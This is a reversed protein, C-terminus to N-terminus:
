SQSYRCFSNGAQLIVKETNDADPLKFKLVTDREAALKLSVTKGESFEGSATIGHPLHLQEFRCRKWGRPIGRFFYFTGNQEYAFMDQIATVVGMAADMQMINNCFAFETFGRFIADHLSNGGKNTFCKKWLELMLVAAEANGFRTRLQSAWATAWGTWEGMGKGTWRCNSNFVTEKWAPDEPDITNFPCIGGLHSHHRHSEELPLGEWVAIEPKNGDLFISCQPLRDEIKQWFPDAKVDLIAAAKLLNRALNHISALQFSSNKGCANIATGRYEPSISLPMSLTGDPEEAIMKRFVNMVGKMFDFVEQKLFTFDGSYDCYDFMMMAIWAACSHDISGTWFSGMCMGRDDAAHPLMYGDDIGIFCKANHRLSKKWSLIMRFLPMLHDFLGAKFGPSNCMQVNINFHYDGQWPPFAHDEIWPGQLGPSVGAPNTMIGYKYMGSCYTEELWKGETEIRPIKQFFRNWWIRSQEEMAAFSPLRKGCLVDLDDAGRFCDLSFERGDRKLLLAFSPDAPMKQIFAFIEKEHREAPPEYGRDALTEPKGTISKRCLAYSPLLELSMRDTLGSCAFGHEAAMDSCFLLEKKHGDELYIVKTLGEEPITESRLLEAQGPLHIVVRGCPVLSPRAVFSGAVTKSSFVKRIGDIDGAAVSKKIFEFNQEPTWPMGGRHDWLSACGVSMNLTSKEGWLQAGLLGNGLM